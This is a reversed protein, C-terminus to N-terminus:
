EADSGESSEEEEEDSELSQLDDDNAVKKAKSKAIKEAM